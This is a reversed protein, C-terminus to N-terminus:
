EVTFKGVLPTAATANAEADAANKGVLVTYEGKDIVWRGNEGGEWHRLDQIRIPLPVRKGMGPELEVRNFSKLEKVARAAGPTGPAAVPGKVFLMPVEAGKPGSMNTIDITADVISKETVTTCPVRLNAYQFTSYSLGHGFPFVLDVPEGAAVRRDFERYGFFYGMTTKTGGAEDTFRQLEAERAWAMPMKGSFNADGFLLKGYALGGRQGSYGAWITAVNKNEHELWPLAVYSGSNIIIVTPKMLALVGNIFENQGHPLNLTARDGGALIAYEEGEDGPALGVVAVILDPNAATVAEVSNAGTVTTVGHMGGIQTIGALPGVSKEPDANVRSSGRDGLSVDTAMHLVPGSIPNTTSQISIPLDLGAVVISPMGTIPLVPTGEVGNRLLVASKIAAEEALELHPENNILSAGQLQTRTPNKLGWNDSALATKFRFKQELVREAATDVYRQELQGNMVITELQSYNIDWPVEIDLGAEAAEKAFGAAIDPPVGNGGQDGPMAWWDSLVTGRFAMGGAAVPSRLIDTLLKKNQTLKKGNIKNYAAM